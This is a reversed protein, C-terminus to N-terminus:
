LCHWVANLDLPACSLTVSTATAVSCHAKHISLWGSTLFYVTAMHWWKVHSAQCLIIIYPRHSTVHPPIALQISNATPKQQHNSGDSNWMNWMVVCYGSVNRDLILFITRAATILNAATKNLSREQHSISVQKKVLTTLLSKTNLHVSWAKTRKSTAAQSQPRVPRWETLSREPKDTYWVKAFVHLM